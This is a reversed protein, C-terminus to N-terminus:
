AVEIVDGIHYVRVENGQVRLAAGSGLSIVQRLGTDGGKEAFRRLLYTAGRPGTLYTDSSGNEFTQTHATYTTRGLKVTGNDTITWTEYGTSMLLVRDPTHVSRLVGLVTSVIKRAISRPVAAVPAVIARVIRAPTSLAAAEDQALISEAELSAEEALWEAELAALYAAERAAEAAAAEREAKRAKMFDALRPMPHAAKYESLETAYLCTAYEAAEWWAQQAPYFDALLSAIYANPTRSM